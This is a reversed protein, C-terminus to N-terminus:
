QPSFNSNLLFPIIQRIRTLLSCKLKHNFADAIAAIYSYNYRNSIIRKELLNYSQKIPLITFFPFQHFGSQKWYKHM